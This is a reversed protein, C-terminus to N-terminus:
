VPLPVRLTVTTGDGNRWEIRGGLARARDELSALGTGHTSQARDFGVGDDAVELM